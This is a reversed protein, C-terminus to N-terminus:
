LSTKTPNQRPDKARTVMGSVRQPYTGTRETVSTRDTFTGPMTEIRM